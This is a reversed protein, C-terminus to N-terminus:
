RLLWLSLTTAYNSTLLAHISAMLIHHLIFAAYAVALFATTTTEDSNAVSVQADRHPNRRHWIV